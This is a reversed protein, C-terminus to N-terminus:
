DCKAGEVAEVIDSVMKQLKAIEERLVKNEKWAIGAEVCRVSELRAAHAAILNGTIEDTECDLVVATFERLMEYDNKFKRYESGVLRVDPMDPISPLEAVSDSFNWFNVRQREVLWERFREPISKVTAAGRSM